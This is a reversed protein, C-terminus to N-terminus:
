GWVAMIGNWMLALGRRWSTLCIGAAGAFPSTRTTAARLPGGYRTHLYNRLLLRQAHRGTHGLGQEEQRTRCGGPPLSFRAVFGGVWVLYLFRDQTAPTGIRRGEHPRIAEEESGSFGGSRRRIEIGAGTLNAISVVVHAASASSSIAWLCGHHRRDDRSSAAAIAWGDSSAWTYYHFFSLRSDSIM